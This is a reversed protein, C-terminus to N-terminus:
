KLCLSVKFLEPLAAKMYHRQLLQALAATGLLPHRLTLGALRLHADEVEALSLLRQLAQARPGGAPRLPRFRLPRIGSSLQIGDPGPLWYLGFSRARCCALGAQISRGGKGYAAGAGEKGGKLRVLSPTGAEPSSPSPSTSRAWGCSTSTSRRGRPYGAM